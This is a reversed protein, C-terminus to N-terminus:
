AREGAGVTQRQGAIAAREALQKVNELARQEQELNSQLLRAADERGIARANTILYEYVAIEHHETEMAGSLIISDALAEDAKRITAKGEKEIADIVAHPSDDVEWGFTAFVQEIN